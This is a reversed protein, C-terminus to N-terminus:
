PRAGKTLNMADALDYVAKLAEFSAHMALEVALTSHNKATEEKILTIVARELEQRTM